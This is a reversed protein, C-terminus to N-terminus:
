ISIPDHTNLQTIWLYAGAVDHAHGQWVFVSGSGSAEGGILAVGQLPIDKLLMAPFGREPLANVILHPKGFTALKGRAEDITKATLWTGDEASRKGYRFVKVPHGQAKLYSQWAELADEDGRDEWLLLVPKGKALPIFHGPVSWRAQLREWWAM